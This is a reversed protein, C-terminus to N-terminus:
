AKKNQEVEKGCTDIFFDLTNSYSYAGTAHKLAYRVKVSQGIHGTVFEADVRFTVPKGASVTTIPIWGSTSASPNSGTWYYTLIDGKVTGTYDVM